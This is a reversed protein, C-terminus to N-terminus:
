SGYLAAISAAQERQRLWEAVERCDAILQDIQRREAALAEAVEGPIPLYAAGLEEQLRRALQRRFTGRIAPWRVPLVLVIVVYLVTLTLIVTILPFFLHSLAPDWPQDSLFYQYLLYLSSGFLAALPLVDGLLILARQAGRRVGTPQAWETEVQHLVEILVAAFRQRWDTRAAAETPESLLAVPFGEQDAQVLLRNPLARGRADLHRDSALGSCARSFAALDWASSASDSLDGRLPRPLQKRLSSGFYRLRTLLRLFGAMLGRFRRHGELAFHQEIERQYPDITVLLIEAMAEAEDELSREWAKRTDLAADALDPPKALELAHEVQQLLQSVGRAKIAEIELRTLGLELWRELEAFQEGEPLHAPPQSNAEVWAQACTRFLLPNEFGEEKLDRLLDEDPRISQGDAGHLCRDWKNLVFAFARRQRQELFLEWGLRDHYKEQSGVYLVVDAVPLLRKLKERNAEENSDLDPTDVIVKQELEPRDHAVLRCQQLAKDLRDPRISEHYYVVPERTTPRQFSAQAVPGRALANLLTSKGVGTGGMLMIILLPKDVDLAVAQRQLDASLGDFTAQTLTSFSRRRPASLWARLRQDLRRLAPALTRLLPEASPTATSM